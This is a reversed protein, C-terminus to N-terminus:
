FKLQRTRRGPIYQYQSISTFFCDMCPAEELPLMEGDCLVSDYAVFSTISVSGTIPTTRIEWQVSCISDKELPFYFDISGIEGQIPSEADGIPSGGGHGSLHMRGVGSYDPVVSVEFYLLEGIAISDPSFSVQIGYDEDFCSPWYDVDPPKPGLEDCGLLIVAVMVFFSCVFRFIRATQKM